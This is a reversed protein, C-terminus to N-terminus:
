TFVAVVLAVLSIVIAWKAWKTADRAVDNADAATRNADTAIQNAGLAIENAEEALGVTKASRNSVGERFVREEKAKCEVLFAEAMKAKPGSHPGYLERALDEGVQVPGKKEFDAKWVGAPVDGAM